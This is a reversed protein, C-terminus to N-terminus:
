QSKVMKEGSKNKGLLILHLEDIHYGGTKVTESNDRDIKIGIFPTPTGLKGLNQDAPMM